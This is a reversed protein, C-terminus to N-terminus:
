TYIRSKGNASRATLGRIRENSLLLVGSLYLVLLYASKMFRAHASRTTLERIRENSLLLVGQLHLLNTCIM